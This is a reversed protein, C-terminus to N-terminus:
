AAVKSAVARWFGGITWAEVLQVEYDTGDVSVVDPANSAALPILQDATILSILEKTRLGEPLRELERGTVPYAAARVSVSSTAGLTARGAVYTTAARRTVQYTSAFSLVTASLDM